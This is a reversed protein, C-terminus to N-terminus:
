HSHVSSASSLNQPPRVCIQRPQAGGRRREKGKKRKGRSEDDRMKGKEKKREKEQEKKREGTGEENAGSDGLAGVPAELLLRPLQLILSLPLAGAATGETAAAVVADTVM